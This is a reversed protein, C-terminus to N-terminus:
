GEAGYFRWKVDPKMRERLEQVALMIRVALEKDEEDPDDADVAIERVISWVEPVAAAFDDFEKSV